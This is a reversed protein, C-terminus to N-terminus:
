DEDWDANGKPPKPGGAQKSMIIQDVRLVTLAADTAYRIAWSKVVLLDFIGAKVADVTGDKENEVDVGINNQDSQHHAAYLKSLIETADLGAGEALTRPIVELAEAFKKISHQNLGPTKEGFSLLRKVLEMEAAGAGPVLRNDRMVAKVTNVGDDIAREIDDLHNQTAGRVVITATKSSENPSSPPS